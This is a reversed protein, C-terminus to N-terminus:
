IKKHFIVKVKKNNKSFEKAIRGSKEPCGDDIIIIEYKKSIKKVVNLSDVIMKKVTRKDKFVPFMISISQTKKM